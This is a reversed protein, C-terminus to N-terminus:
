SNLAKDIAAYVEDANNCHRFRNLDVGDDSDPDDLVQTIEMLGQMHQDSDSGALTILVYVPDEEGDFYIPEKLTVLAFATKIVGEEPRAHPMALGPALIIYPGMKEINSIITDYYRPEIAGSAELLDTGIKIAAKWDAATQNLKISNNAILSEKLM